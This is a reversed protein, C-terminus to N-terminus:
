RRVRVLTWQNTKLLTLTSGLVLYSQPSSGSQEELFVLIFVLSFFILKTQKQILTSSEQEFLSCISRDVRSSRTREIKKLIWFFLKLCFTFSSGELFHLFFFFSWGLFTPLCTCLWTFYLFPAAHVMFRSLGRCSWLWNCVCCKERLRVEM